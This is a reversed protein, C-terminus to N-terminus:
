VWDSCATPPSPSLHPLRVALGIYDLEGFRNKVWREALEKNSNETLIKRITVVDFRIPVMIFALSSILVARSCCQWSSIREAWSGTFLAVPLAVPTFVTLKKKFFALM